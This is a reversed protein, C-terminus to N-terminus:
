VLVSLKTGVKSTYDCGTLSHLAPMVNCKMIGMERALIHIPIYRTKQQSGVRQWLEKLGIWSLRRWYYLLNVLIDTDASLVILRKIGDEAANFAHPIIRTDAEELTSDIEPLTTWLHSERFFGTKRKVAICRDSLDNGVMGSLVVKINKFMGDHAEDALWEKLLKQLKTKNNGSPWFTMLDKPLRTAQTIQNIEIPKSSERRSRESDKVSGEIYSDFVFDVRDPKKMLNKVMEGFKKLIHYFLVGKCDTIKRINAMVYVIYGQSMSRGKEPKVPYEKGKLYKKELEDCLHSKVAKTMLGDDDFLENSSVFDYSFLEKTDYGRACVIDLLKQGKIVNRPQKKKKSAKKKDEETLSAFTKTNTRHITDFLQLKKQQFREQRFDTYLKVATERVNLLDNRIEDPM